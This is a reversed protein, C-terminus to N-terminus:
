HVMSLCFLGVFLVMLLGLLAKMLTKEAPSM